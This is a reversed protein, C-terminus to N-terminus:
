EPGLGVITELKPSGSIANAALMGAMVTAEICGANFGNRTWDGTLFLNEFGSKGPELRHELSGSVSLM